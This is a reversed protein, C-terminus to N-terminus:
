WKQVVCFNIYTWFQIKNKSSSNTRFLSSGTSVATLRPSRSFIPLLRRFGRLLASFLQFSFYAVPLLQYCCFHASFPRSCSSITSLQQFHSEITFFLSFLGFYVRVSDSLFRLLSKGCIKAIKKASIGQKGSNVDFELLNLKTWLDVGRNAKREKVM